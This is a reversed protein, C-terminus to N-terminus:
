TSGPLSLACAGLSVFISM